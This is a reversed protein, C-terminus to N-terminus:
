IQKKEVWKIGSAFVNLEQNYEQVTAEIACQFRLKTFKANEKIAKLRKAKSIDKTHITLFLEDQTSKNLDRLFNNFEFVDMEKFEKSIDKQNM